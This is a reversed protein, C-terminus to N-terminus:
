FLKPHLIGLRFMSAFFLSIHESTRMRYDRFAIRWNERMNLFITKSVLIIIGFAAALLIMEAIPQIPQSLPTTLHQHTSSAMADGAMVHGNEILSIISCSLVFTFALSAIVGVILPPKRKLWIM